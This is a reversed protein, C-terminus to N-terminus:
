PGRSAMVENAGRIWTPWLQYVKAIFQVTAFTSNQSAPFVDTFSKAGDMLSRSPSHHHLFRLPVSLDENVRFLLAPATLSGYVDRTSKIGDPQLYKYLSPTWLASGAGGSLLGRPLASPVMMYENKRFQALADELLDNMSMSKFNEPLKYTRQPLSPWISVVYDNEQTASRSTASLSLLLKSFSKPDLPGRKCSLKKGLLFRALGLRQEFSRIGYETLAKLTESDIIVKKSLAAHQSAPWKKTSHSAHEAGYPSLHVLDNPMPESDKLICPAPLSSAWYLQVSTAYLLQQRTWVRLPRSCFGTSNLCGVIAKDLQEDVKQKLALADHTRMGSFNNELIANYEIKLLLNTM